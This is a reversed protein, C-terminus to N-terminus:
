ADFTGGQGVPDFHRELDEREWFIVQCAHDIWTDTVVQEYDEWGETQKEKM